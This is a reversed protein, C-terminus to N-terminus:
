VSTEILSPEVLRTIQGPEKPRDSHAISNADRLLLNLLTGAVITGGVPGLKGGSDEAEALVYFWLPSKSLGAAKVKDHTKSPMGWADALDEGYPLHFTRQGRVLNRFPLSPGDKGAVRDPMEFLAQSVNSDIKRAKQFSGDGFDFFLNWHVNSDPPVPNFGGLEFLGAGKDNNVQYGSRVQSHGFRFAAAAFELSIAPTNSWDVPGPLAGQWFGDMLPTLVPEAIIAPLYEDTIISQYTARVTEQAHLFHEESAKGGGTVQDLQQNHFRLFAGHLQSIFMNEDNRPDGILAVGADNRQLDGPNQATGVVFHFNRDYAYPFQEPGERYVSDLDLVPTRFNPVINTAPKGLQSMIDLTLDHDIFQGLFTIGAPIDADQGAGTAGENMSDALTLLQAEDPQNIEPQALRGFVPSSGPGSLALGAAEQTQIVGFIADAVSGHRISKM